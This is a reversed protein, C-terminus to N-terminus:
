PTGAEAARREGEGEADIRSCRADIGRDDFRAAAVGAGGLAPLADAHDVADKM